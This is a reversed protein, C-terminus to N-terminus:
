PPPLLGPQHGGGNSSGELTQIVGRIEFVGTDKVERVAAWDGQKAAAWFQKHKDPPLTRDTWSQLLIMIAQETRSGADILKGNQYIPHTRLKTFTDDTGLFLRGHHESLQGEMTFSRNLLCQLRNGASDELVFPVSGGDYVYRVDTVEVPAHLSLHAAATDESLVVTSGPSHCNAVLAACVLIGVCRGYSKIWYYM